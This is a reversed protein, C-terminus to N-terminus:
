VSTEGTQEPIDPQDQVRDHEAEEKLQAELWIQGALRAIRRKQKEREVPDKIICDDFIRGVGGCSTKIEMVLAM